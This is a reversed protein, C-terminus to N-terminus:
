NGRHMEAGHASWRAWIALRTLAGGGCLPHRRRPKGFIGSLQTHQADFIQPSQTNKKQALCRSMRQDDNFTIWWGKMYWHITSKVWKNLMEQLIIISCSQVVTSTHTEAEFTFRQGRNPEASLGSAVLQPPKAFDLSQKSVWKASWNRVRSWCHVTSTKGHCKRHIRGNSGHSGKSGAM